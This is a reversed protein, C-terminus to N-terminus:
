CVAARGAWETMDALMESGDTATVHLAQHIRRMIAPLEEGTDFVIHVAGLIQQLTRLGGIVDGPAKVITLFVCQPMRRVAATSSGGM